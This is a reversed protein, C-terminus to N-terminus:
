IGFKMLGLGGSALHIWCKDVQGWPQWLMKSSESSLKKELYFKQRALRTLYFTLVLLCGLARQLRYYMSMTYTCLHDTSALTSIYWLSNCRLEEGPNVLIIGCSNELQRIRILLPWLVTCLDNKKRKSIKKRYKNLKELALEPRIKRRYNLDINHNMDHLWVHIMVYCKKM